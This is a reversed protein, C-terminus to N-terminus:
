NKPHLELLLARTQRDVAAEAVVGLALRELAAWQSPPLLVRLEQVMQALSVASEPTSGM